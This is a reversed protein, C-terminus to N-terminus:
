TWRLEGLMLDQLNAVRATATLTLNNLGLKDPDRCVSVSTRVLLQQETALNHRVRQSGMSQLVGITNKVIEQFKSLNMNMSDTIGDLWRMRNEMRRRGETKVAGPDKGLLRSEVDPPWLIPAGAEADTRGIFIRLQNGKPNVPKIEKCDM